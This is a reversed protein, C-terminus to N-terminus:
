DDYNSDRNQPFGTSSTHENDRNICLFSQWVWMKSNGFLTKSNSCVGQVRLRSPLDNAAESVVTRPEESSGFRGRPPPLTFPFPRRDPFCGSDESSPNCVRCTLDTPPTPEESGREESPGDAGPRQACRPPYGSRRRLRGGTLGHRAPPEHGAAMDESLPALVFPLNPM